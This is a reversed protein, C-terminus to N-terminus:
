EKVAGIMMGDVFYKQMVPYIMLLPLSSVIMVAYRVLDATHVQDVFTSASGTAGTGGAELTVENLVLIQRLILQLPFLNKNSLYILADFYRNWIGVGQFLAMVAIIPLSLPLVIKRLIMFESAGDIEASELLSKPINSEFFSRAVLISWAGVLNPLLIAWITDVLGLNDVVLYRPIMGGSFLMTFVIFWTIYKRGYVEERSLAYAAPILVFLHLLTGAVTYFITNRYGIWIAENQFVRKFGEFTIGVPWLWVKGTNVAVPDSISASAVFILPYMILITILIVLIKNLRDFAKDSLTFDKM